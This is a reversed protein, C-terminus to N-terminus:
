CMLNIWLDVNEHKSYTEFWLLHVRKILMIGTEHSAPMSSASPTDGGSPKSESDL